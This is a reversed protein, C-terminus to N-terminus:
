ARPQESARATVWVASAITYAMPHGDLWADAYKIPNALWSTVLKALRYGKASRGSLFMALFESAIWAAASAPGLAVGSAEVEFSHREVEARLGAETYRRHDAPSPHYGQIFPVDVLLRGGPALVRRAEALTRGADAVHELVAMLIVGDCSGDALPLHEAVGVVDIGPGPVIELNLVNEGYSTAGAGVNVVLADPGLSAVFRSPIGKVQKSKHSLTPRLRGRHRDLVRELRPPLVGRSGPYWREDLHPAEIGDPLLLPVGSEVPYSAGCGSCSARADHWELASRCTPCAAVSRLRALM